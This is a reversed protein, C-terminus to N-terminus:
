EKIGSSSMTELVRSHFFIFILIPPLVLLLSAASVAGTRAVTNNNIQALAAPLTKLQEDFIVTQGVDGWISQFSFIILTLWAPKVQPMALRWFIQIETAGDIKGAEIISDSIGEMFQKMLFLGLVSQIQPLIVAWQSNLLGIRSLIIYRPIQTVPASFLLAWVVTGFLAARGRFKYKALPFAAASAIIVHFVTTVATVFVSNFAYRSFPVMLGSTLEFMQSFNKFTPNTVYFRPPFVFLEGAPKVSSIVLLYLPLVMIFGLLCLVLLLLINGFVSRNIGSGIKFAKIKAM